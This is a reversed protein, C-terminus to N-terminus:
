KRSMRDRPISVACSIASLSGLMVPESINSHEGTLVSLRPLFKDNSSMLFDQKLHVESVM